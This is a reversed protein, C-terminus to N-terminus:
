PRSARRRSPVEQRTSAGAITSASKMRAWCVAPAAPTTEPRNCASCRIVGVAATLGLFGLLAAGPVPVPRVRDVVYIMDNHDEDGLNLDEWALLFPDGSTWPTLTGDLDIYITEGALEPLAFTM